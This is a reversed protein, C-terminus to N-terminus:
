SVRREPSIRLPDDKRNEPSSRRWMLHAEEIIGYDGFVERENAYTVDKNRRKESLPCYYCSDTCLGTVFLVLKGGRECIKCGEPIM